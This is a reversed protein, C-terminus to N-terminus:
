DRERERSLSLSLFSARSVRAGFPSERSDIEKQPDREELQASAISSQKPFLDQRTAVIQGTKVFFGKMDYVLQKVAASAEDHTEDWRVECEEEDLCEGLVKERLVNGIQTGALRAM